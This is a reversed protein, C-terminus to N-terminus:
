IKLSDSLKHQGLHFLFKSYPFDHLGAINLFILATILEIRNFDYDYDKSWDKLFERCEMLNSLQHISFNFHNKKIEKIKFLNKTM